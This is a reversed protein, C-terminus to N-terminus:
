SLLPDVPPLTALARYVRSRSVGFHLTINVISEGQQIMAYAERGLAALMDRQAQRRIATM